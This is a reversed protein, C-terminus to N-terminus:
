AESVNVAEPGKKGEGLEFQISDDSNLIQTPNAQNRIHYFLDATPIDQDPDPIIFGFGKSKSFFKVKGTFTRNDQKM